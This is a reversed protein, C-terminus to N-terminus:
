RFGHRKAFQNGILLWALLPYSMLILETMSRVSIFLALVGLGYTGVSAVPLPTELLQAWFRCARGYILGAVVVGIWGFGVYWEAISSCSLSASIGLYESLDFGPSMPKGPWLARPVPRVVLWLLWDFGTHPQYKPVIELDQAFRLFNDDVRVYHFDDLNYSFEIAGRSRTALMMDMVLLLLVAAIVLALVHKLKIAGRVAALWTFIASGICMGLIRRGGGQMVFPLFVVSLLVGLLVPAAFFKREKVFALVTLTPLLYGFYCLHEVFAYWGGMEGRSWPTAFRQAMLGKVMVSPSFGSMFAFYFIGLVFCLWIARVLFSTPPDLSAVRQVIRPLPRPSWATAAFMTGVFLGIALFTSQVADRGVEVPYLGQIPDLLVFYTLGGLIASEPRLLADFGFQPVAAVVAGLLGLALLTAPM